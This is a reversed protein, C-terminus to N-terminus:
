KKCINTFACWKCAEEVTTQAVPIQPDFIEELCADFHEKFEDRYETFDTIREDDRGQKSVVDPDFRTDFLNRLYYIGPEPIKGPHELLYLHAYMFVQMVAKPRDKMEKDFLDKMERYRLVGKGTKYDIIRTHGKVEDIRDIIGKLSVTKGSPLPYTTEIHEESDIYIFPTLKADM